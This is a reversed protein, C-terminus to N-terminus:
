KVGHIASFPDWGPDRHVALEINEAIRDADEHGALESILAHAMDMGAAVGSSTWIPTGNGEDVVWRAQPVWAVQDSQSTVWDWAKKNSTARCGDLVGAAALLASGTCVSTIVTARHCIEALVTLFERDGALRRSGNGGPVLVIDPGGPRDRVDTYGTQATVEAGQASGVPQGTRPGAYEVTWGPAHSFLEIPGFVDLVEFGEYLIVTVTRKQATDAPSVM